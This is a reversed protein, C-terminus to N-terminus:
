RRELADAKESLTPTPTPIFIEGRFGILKWGSKSTDPYFNINAWKKALLHNSDASYIYNKRSV